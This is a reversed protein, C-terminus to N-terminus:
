DEDKKVNYLDELYGKVPNDLLQHGHEQTDNLDKTVKTLETGANNSSEQPVKETTQQLAIDKKLDSKLSENASSTTMHNGVPMKVSDDKIKISAVEVHEQHLNFYLDGIIEAPDDPHNAPSEQIEEVQETTTDSDKKLKVLPEKSSKNAVVKQGSPTEVPPLNEDTTARVPPLEIREAVDPKKESNEAKKSNAAVKDVLPRSTSKANQKSKKAAKGPPKQIKAVTKKISSKKSNENKKSQKTQKSSKNAELKKSRANEEVTPKQDMPEQFSNCDCVCKLWEVFGELTQIIVEIFVHFQHLGVNFYDM